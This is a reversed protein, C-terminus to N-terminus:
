WELISIEARVKSGKIFLKGISIPLNFRRPGASGPNFYLVGQRDQQEPRHTHGYIVAGFGAAKPDLGIANVDHVVYVTADGIQAINSIPLKSARSSSDTNGRVATVAAITELEDLVEDSGIDGAHIIHDVGSLWNKADERLSGHTDSVVGVVLEREVSM